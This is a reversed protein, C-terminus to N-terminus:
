TIFHSFFEQCANKTNMVLVIAGATRMNDTMVEQLRRLNEGPAKLEVFFVSQHGILIRDPVGAVGIARFKYALFGTKKALRVFKQEVAHELTGDHYRTNMDQLWPPLQRRIVPETLIADAQERSNVIRIDAGYERMTQIQRGQQSKPDVFKGEAKCEVFLVRGQGILIRDPVGRRGLAQFKYQQYGLSTAKRILYGEVYHEPSGM